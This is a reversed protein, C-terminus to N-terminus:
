PVYRFGDQFNPGRMEVNPRSAPICPFNGYSCQYGEKRCFVVGNRIPCPEARSPLYDAPLLIRGPLTSPQTSALLVAAQFVLITVVWLIPPFTPLQKDLMLIFVFYPAVAVVIAATLFGYGFRMDPATLLWFIVGAYNILWALFYQKPLKHNIGIARHILLGLPSVIALLFLIAQNQTL